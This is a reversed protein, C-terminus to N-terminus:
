WAIRIVADSDGQIPLTRPSNEELICGWPAIDDWRRDQVADIFTPQFIETVSEPDGYSFDYCTSGLLQEVSTAFDEQLVTELPPTDYWQAMTTLIAALGSSTESLVGTGRVALERLDTPPVAAMVVVPTIEPALRKPTGILLWPPLVVRARATYSPGLRILNPSGSKNRLKSSCREQAISHPSRQRNQPLIRICILSSPEAWGNMGVYDPAAVVYGLSAFLMAFIAGQDWASISWM